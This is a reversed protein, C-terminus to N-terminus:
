TVVAAVVVAVAVVIAVVAVHRERHWGLSPCAKKCGSAPEGSGERLRM